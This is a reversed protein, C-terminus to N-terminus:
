EAPRLVGYVYHDLTIYKNAAEKVQEPTIAKIAKYYEEDSIIENGLFSSKQLTKLWYDNEKVAAERERIFTEKAKSMDIEEPGNKQITKFEDFVVGVLKDVNDPSCGFSVSLDYEQKPYKSPSARFGIGYTGSEDERVKERLKISLVKELTKLVLNNNMNYTYDGNMKLAVQSQPEKGKHLTFESIGEPFGPAVDKWEKISGTPALSGIYKEVLPKLEETNINGVFFFSFDDIPQFYTSYLNYISEQKINQIQKESPLMVVRPSNLSAVKSLTDYFAMRPNEHMFKIQNLFNDISKDFVEKDQRPNTFYLYQLQLLTEIDQPTTSGSFGNTLHDLDVNLDVIKGTLKKELEIGTFNGLGSESVVEEFVRVMAVEDDPILSSGGPCYAKYLIEDNKFDTPKVYVEAGNDLKWIEYNAEFTQIDIIKGPAIEETILPEDSINDEYPSLKATKSALVIASVEEESPVIVEPKEPATIMIAMNNDTIWKKALTNIEELTISPMLAQALEYEKEIGPVPEQALYNYVYEQALGRSEQKDRENYSQEYSRLADVKHREFETETFGFQSVRENEELLVQLSFAIKDPKAVAFSSYADKSRGLFGGYGTYAYMFPSTPKQMIEALRANLMSNYVKEKLYDRYGNVTTKIKRDHKYFVNVIIYTAEEDTAIAILPEENNPIEYEIRERPNKPGEIQSFHKKVKKEMEDPDIDGVIIIAQLDPRYWDNYFDRILDPEFTEIIEKKGIPLRDAYKSGYLLIPFYKNRMRENAGLGLRWEEIVVGREKDIEETSLTVNHAWDEMILFTSDILGERDAPMQLMYVTEDFSTYANLHQGFKVGTSEIFDIIASKDFHETGNFCMHECLHALGLQDDNECISGANVALRFEVRNEPEENHRIYYSFGNDLKGFKILPDLALKENLDQASIGNFIAVLIGIFLISKKLM